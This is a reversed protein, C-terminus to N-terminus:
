AASARRRRLWGLVPIQLSIWGRNSIALANVRAADDVVALGAYHHAGQGEAHVGEKEWLLDLYVRGSPGTRVAQRTPTPLGRARCAVAVDVENISQAGACIDRIVASLFRRRRSSATSSWRDLLQHTSVLRQQVAMAVVTAAERDSRAWQAARVACGLGM